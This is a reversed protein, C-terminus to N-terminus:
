ARWPHRANVRQRWAAREEESVEEVEEPAPVIVVNIHVRHRRCSRPRHGTYKEILDDHSDAEHLIEGRQWLERDADSWSNPAIIALRGCDDESSGFRQELNRVRRDMSMGEM